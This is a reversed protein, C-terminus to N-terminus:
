ENGLLKWVAAEPTQAIKSLAEKVQWYENETYNLVIKMDSDMSDVDVEKNKDAYSIGTEESEWGPLELGWDTLEDADWENALVDWDNEGFGVNDVIIFRRKEEETFDDADGVWKDPISKTRRVEQWIQVAEDTPAGKNSEKQREKEILSEFVAQGLGVIHTIARYRVNGGLTINGGQQDIIMPRKQLMKPFCLLSSVAKDFRHDRVVRPNNPNPKIDSLKM